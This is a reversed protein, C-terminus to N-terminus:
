MPFIKYQPSLSSMQKHEPKNQDLASNIDGRGMFSSWSKGDNVICIVSKLESVMNVIQGCTFFARTKEYLELSPSFTNLLNVETVDSFNRRFPVPKKLMQIPAIELGRLTLNKSFFSLCVTCHLLSLALLGTSYKDMVVFAFFTPWVCICNNWGLEQLFETSVSRKGLVGLWVM